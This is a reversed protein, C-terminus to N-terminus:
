CYEETGELPWCLGAKKVSVRAELFPFIFSITACIEELKGATVVKNKQLNTSCGESFFSIIACKEEWYAVQTKMFQTRADKM